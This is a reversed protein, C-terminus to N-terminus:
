AFMLKSSPVKSCPIPTTLLSSHAFIHFSLLMITDSVHPVLPLELLILSRLSPTISDAHDGKPRRYVSEQQLPDLPRYIPFLELLLQLKYEVFKELSKHEILPSLTKQITSYRQILNVALWQAHPDQRLQSM